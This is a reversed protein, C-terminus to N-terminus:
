PSEQSTERALVRILSDVENKEIPDNDRLWIFPIEAVTQDAWTITFDREGRQVDAINM